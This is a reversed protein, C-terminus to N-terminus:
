AIFSKWSHFLIFLSIHRKNLLNISFHSVESRPFYLVLYASFGEYSAGLNGEFDKLDGEEALDKESTASAPEEPTHVPRKELDDASHITAKVPETNAYALYDLSPTAPIAASALTVLLYLPLWVLLALRKGVSPISFSESKSVM